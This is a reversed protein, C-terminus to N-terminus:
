TVLALKGEKEVEDRMKKYDWCLAVLLTWVGIWILLSLISSAMGALILVFGILALIIEPARMKMQSRGHM